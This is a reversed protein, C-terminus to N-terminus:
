KQRKKIGSEKGEAAQGQMERRGGKKGKEKDSQKNGIQREQRKKRYKKVAEM